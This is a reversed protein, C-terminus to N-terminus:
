STSRKGLAYAGVAFLTILLFAIFSLQPISVLGGFLTESATCSGVFCQGPELDPRAQILIHYSAVLLGLISLPLVFFALDKVRRWMGMGIVLPLAYMLIRQYWCLECPFYGFGRWGIPGIGSLSLSGLTAVVSVLLAAAWFYRVKIV